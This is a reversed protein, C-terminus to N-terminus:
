LSVKKQERWCNMWRLGLLMLFLHLPQSGGQGHVGLRVLLLFLPLLLPLPLPLPLPLCLLLGFSLLSTLPSPPSCLLSLASPLTTIFPPSPKNWAKPLLLSLKSLFPLFFFLFPLFSSFFLLSFFFRRSITNSLKMLEAVATNILPPKGEMASTVGEIAGKVECLFDMEEEGVEGGYGGGVVGEFRGGDERGKVLGWLRFLWRYPGLIQEEDWQLDLDPPAKFLAYVRATDAGYKSFIEAPDVGNHKSKSMKEWTIDVQPLSLLFFFLCILKLSM